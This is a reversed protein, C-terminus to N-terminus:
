LLRSDAPCKTRETLQPAPEQADVYFVRISPPIESLVRLGNRNKRMRHSCRLARISRLLTTAISTCFRIIVLESTLSFTPDSPWGLAQLRRAISAFRRLRQEVVSRPRCSELSRCRHYVEFGPRLM